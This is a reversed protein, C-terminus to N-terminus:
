FCKHTAGGLTPLPFAPTGTGVLKREPPPPCVAHVGQGTGDREKVRVQVSLHSGPPGPFASGLGPSPTLSPGPARPLTRLLQGPTKRNPGPMHALSGGEGCPWLVNPLAHAALFEYGVQVAQPVAPVEGLFHELYPM